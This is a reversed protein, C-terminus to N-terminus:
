SVTNSGLLERFYKDLNELKRIEELTFWNYETHEESLVPTGDARGVYTLRVIHKESNPIIDQASILKPEGLIELGTEEMVERRLNEILSAGADIRGGVIDWQKSAEPYKEPSRWLLLYKGEKNKLLIKVGVQLEM